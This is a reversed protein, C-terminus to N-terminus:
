LTKTMQSYWIMTETHFFFRTITFAFSAWIRLIRLSDRSYYIDFYILCPSPPQTGGGIFSSHYKSYLTSKVKLWGYSVLKSSFVQIGNYLSFFFFFLTISSSYHFRMQHSCTLQRKANKFDNKM